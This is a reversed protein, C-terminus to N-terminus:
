AYENIRSPSFIVRPKKPTLYSQLYIRIALTIGLGGVVLILWKTLDLIDIM